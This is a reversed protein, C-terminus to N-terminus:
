EAGRPPRRQRGPPRHRACRRHARRAAAHHAGAPSRLRRRAREPLELTPDDVNKLPFGEYTTLAPLMFSDLPDVLYLVELNAHRFVDLHPSHAASKVDDGLLYYITRQEPRMRGVYEALSTLDQDGGPRSSFFRLLPTLRDRALPDTALGEKIFTSYAQWFRTYTEPAKAALEKLTDVVKHTLANKLREMVRNAQVTERSVNLPVDESEVV